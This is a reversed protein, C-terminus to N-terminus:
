KLGFVKLADDLVQISFFGALFVCAITLSMAPGSATPRKGSDDM